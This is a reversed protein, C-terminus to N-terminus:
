SHENVPPLARYRELELGVYDNVVAGSMIANTNEDVNSWLNLKNAANVAFNPGKESVCM